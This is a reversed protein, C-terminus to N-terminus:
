SKRWKDEENGYILLQGCHECSLMSKMWYMHGCTPCQYRILSGNEIRILRERIQKRLSTTAFNKTKLDLDKSNEIQTIAKQIKAEYKVDRVPAHRVDKLNIQKM